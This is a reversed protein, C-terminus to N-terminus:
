KIKHLKRILIMIGWLHLKSLILYLRIKKNTKHNNLKKRSTRFVDSAMERKIDRKIKSYSYKSFLIEEEIIKFILEVYDNAIQESFVHNNKVSIATLAKNLNKVKEYKLDSYKQIISMSNIRYHYPYFNNVLCLKNCQTIASITSVLDEGISVDDPCDKLINLILERKYLKTVRNPSIGRSPIQGSCIAIPYIDNLIDARDYLTKKLLITEKEDPKGNEFNKTLGCLAMDSQTSQIRHLLKEYMNPDVWDDSDVFGIYNGNSKNVGYKWASMLGGNNKHFVIIRNDFKAWEDCKSGSRDTSGDDVIIIEIAQYTQNVISRICDDIYKEVNYVPVVISIM